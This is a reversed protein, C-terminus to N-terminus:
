QQPWNKPDSGALLSEVTKLAEARVRTRPLFPQPTTGTQPATLTADIGIKSTTTAGLPLSPDLTSGSLGMVQITDRHWQVRTALAWMVERDDYIDVDEDLVIATKIRRYSLASMLADRTEGASASKLQIYAHFRRGSEPVHVNVLAPCVAKIMGYLKAEMLFNDPVLMDPLGSGYDHYIANRRRTICTVEIVQALTQPGVYGTYEGFPGEAVWKDVPVFGEIVIEAEAPIMLKDGHTTSPVLRLPEGLFSSAAEWHSEPYRIKAQAAIVIAPHHGIWLAVPCPEKRAWFKKINLANHATPYSFFAALGKGRIWCRHIATNDIKTEPDYTCVHAATLYPGPALEHQILAPLQQLDVADDQLIIEQCAAKGSSLIEPRVTHGRREHYSRAFDRFDGIGLAEAALCRSATLNCVLPTESIEGNRLKPQEIYIIPRLAKKELAYQLATIEHDVSIPAKVRFVYQGYEKLFTHLDMM